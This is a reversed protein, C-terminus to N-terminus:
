YVRDYDGDLQGRGGMPHVEDVTYIISKYRNVSSGKGPKTLVMDSGKIVRLPAHRVPVYQLQGALERGCVKRTGIRNM